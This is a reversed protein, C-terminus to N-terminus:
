GKEIKKKRYRVQNKPPQMRSKLTVNPERDRAIDEIGEPVWFKADQHGQGGRNTITRPEAKETPGISAAPPPFPLSTAVQHDRHQKSLKPVAGVPCEHRPPM